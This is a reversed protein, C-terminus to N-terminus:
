VRRFALAFDSINNLLAFFQELEAFTIGKRKSPKPLRSELLGYYGAQEQKFFAFHLLTRWSFLNRSCQVNSEHLRTKKACTVEETLDTYRLLLSAFDQESIQLIIPYTFLKPYQAQVRHGNLNHCCFLLEM